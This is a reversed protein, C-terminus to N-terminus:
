TRMGVAVSPVILPLVVRDRAHYDRLSYLIPFTGYLDPYFGVDVGREGSGITATRVVLQQKTFDISPKGQSNSNVSILDVYTSAPCLIATLGPYRSEIHAGYNEAM